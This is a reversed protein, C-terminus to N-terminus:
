AYTYAYMVDDLRQPCGLMDDRGGDIFGYAYAFQDPPQHMYLVTVKGWLVYVYLIRTYLAM